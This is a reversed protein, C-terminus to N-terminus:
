GDAPANQFGVFVTKEGFFVHTCNRHVFPNCAPSGFFFSSDFFFFIRSASVATDNKPRRALVLFLTMKKVCAKESVGVRGVYKPPNRFVEPGKSLGNAGERFCDRTREPVKPFRSEPDTRGRNYGINM